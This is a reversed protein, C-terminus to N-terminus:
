RMLDGKRVPMFCHKWQNAVESWWVATCACEGESRRAEEEAQEEGAEQGTHHRFIGRPAVDIPEGEAQLIEDESQEPEEHGVVGGGVGIADVVEPDKVGNELYEDGM